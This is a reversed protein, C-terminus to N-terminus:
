FNIQVASEISKNIYKDPENKILGIWELYMKEPMRRYGLQHLRVYTQEVESYMKAIAADIFLDEPNKTGHKKMLMDIYHKQAEAKTLMANVNIPHYELVTNCCKIIFEPNERGFKKQYGHALDVLCNAIAQRTNLTDMYLGNRIADTSIYGSAMIWADIPFSANTLETNYWGTQESFLKIYIHNPAFALYCPINLEEAFLKYLHPLSHCNGKGTELLKSVFMKSWDKQGFPDDFDYVYPNHVYFHNPDIQLPITSTLIKFFMAHTLVIDKDKENYTILNPDFLIKVLESLMNIEQNYASVDIEDGHFAQETLFVAEKFNLTKEGRLMAEIQAYADLYYHEQEITQSWANVFLLSFILTCTYKLNTKM